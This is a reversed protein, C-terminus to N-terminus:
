DRATRAQGDRPADRCKREEVQGCAQVFHSTEYWSQSLWEETVNSPFKRPLKFVGLLAFPFPLYGSVYLGVWMSRPQVLSMDEPFWASTKCLIPSM